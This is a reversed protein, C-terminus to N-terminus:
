QYSHYCFTSYRERCQKGIRGELHSAILTWKKPGYKSVLERVRNDEEATWQGKIIHPSLVKTWRTSCQMESRDPFHTGIETWNEEGYLSVLQRLRTDEGNSWRGRNLCRRRRTTTQPPAMIVGSGTTTM